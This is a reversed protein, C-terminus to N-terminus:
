QRGRVPVFVMAVVRFLPQALTAHAQTFPALGFSWSWIHSYGQHGNASGFWGVAALKGKGEEYRWVALNGPGDHRPEDAPNEGM